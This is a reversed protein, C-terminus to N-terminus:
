GVISAPRAEDGIEMPVAWLGPRAARRLEEPRAKEAGGAYDLLATRLEDESEGTALALLARVDDRVYAPAPQPTARLVKAISTREVQEADYFLEEHLKEGQRLGVIHMPQTDPDRGTLRVLDRALDVIRIPEGM